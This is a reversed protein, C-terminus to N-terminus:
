KIVRFHNLAPVFEIDLNISKKIKKVIKENAKAIREKSKEETTPKRPYIPTMINSTKYEGLKKGDKTIKIIGQTYLKSSKLTGRKDNKTVEQSFCNILAKWGTEKFTIYIKNGESEIKDINLPIPKGKSFADGIEEDSLKMKEKQKQGLRQKRSFIKGGRHVQVVGEYLGREDKNLKNLNIEIKEM